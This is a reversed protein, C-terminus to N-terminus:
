RIVEGADAGGWVAPEAVERACIAVMKSDIDQVFIVTLRILIMSKSLLM